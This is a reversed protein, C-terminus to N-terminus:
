GDSFQNLGTHIHRAQVERVARMLIVLADDVIDPPGSFVGVFGDGDQQIQLSGFKADPLHFAALHRQVLSIGQGKRALRDGGSCSRSNEDIIRGQGLIDFDSSFNQEVVTM